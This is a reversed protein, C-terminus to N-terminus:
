ASGAASAVSNRAARLSDSLGPLGREPGSGSGLCAVTGIGAEAGAESDVADFLGAERVANLVRELPRGVREFDETSLNVTGWKPSRVRMLRAYEAIPVARHAYARGEFRFVGREMANMVPGDLWYWFVLVAEYPSGFLTEWAQLSAVDEATTWSERRGVGGRRLDVRRGKVEALLHRSSESAGYVVADFSKIKLGRGEADVCGLTAGRPLVARKADDVMLHALGRAGLWAEFAREYHQGGRAM